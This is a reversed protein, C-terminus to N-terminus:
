KILRLIYVGLVATSLAGAMACIGITEDGVIGLAQSVIGFIAVLVVAAGVIFHVPTHYMAGLPLYHLGVILVVVPVIYTYLGMGWLVACSVGIAGGQVSAIINWRTQARKDAPDSPADPMARIARNAKLARYFLVGSIAVFIAAAIIPFATVRFGWFLFAAWFLTFFALMFVSQLMGTRAKKSFELQGAM